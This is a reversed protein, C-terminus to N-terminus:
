PRRRPVPPQPQPLQRYSQMLRMSLESPQMVQSAMPVVGAAWVPLKLDLHRSTSSQTPEMAATWKQHPHASMQRPCRQQVKRPQLAKAKATARRKM